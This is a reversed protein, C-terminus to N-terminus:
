ERHSVRGPEAVLDKRFKILREVEEFGCAQHALLSAGNEVETDSALERFGQARAWEEAARMLGRGIGRGRASPEVYWGEVHPVPMSDCGDSFARVGVEIFGLPETADEGGELWAAGIFPSNGAVYAQTERLLDDPDADPWLRGRLAAWPATDGREIPRIM